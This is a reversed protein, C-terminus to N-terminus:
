KTFWQMLKLFEASTITHTDELAAIYGVFKCNIEDKYAASRTQKCTSKFNKLQNSVMGPLRNLIEM